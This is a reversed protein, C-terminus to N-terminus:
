QAKVTYDIYKWNLDPSHLQIKYYERNHHLYITGHVLHYIEAVIETLSLERMKHFQATVLVYFALVRDDVESILTPQESAYLNIDNRKITVATLQGNSLRILERVAQELFDYCTFSPIYFTSKEESYRHMVNFMNYIPFSENSPSLWQQIWTNYTAGDILAIQKKDNYYTSNISSFLLTAGENNWKLSLDGGDSSNNSASNVENNHDTTMDNTSQHSKERMMRKVKDLVTPHLEGRRTTMLHDGDETQQQLILELVQEDFEPVLTGFLDYANYEVSWERGTDVVHFALATHFLNIRALIDGLKWKLLPAQLQYVIVQGNPEALPIDRPDLPTWAGAERTFQTTTVTFVYLLLLSLASLAAINSRM